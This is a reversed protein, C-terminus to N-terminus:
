DHSSIQKSVVKRRETLYSSKRELLKLDSAKASNHIVTGDLKILKFYGTTRRGSIFCENNKYLVKDFLRYGM